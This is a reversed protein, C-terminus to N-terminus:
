KRYQKQKGAKVGEVLYYSNRILGKLSEIDCGENLLVSIWHKKNMHYAPYIHINDTLDPIREPDAKLNIVDCKGESDIGMSKYPINMIIAYWKNRVETNLTTSDDDDAFPHVPVTNFEEKVFDFIKERLDAANFCNDRISELTKEAKERIESLFSGESNRVNFLIYESGEEDFVTVEAKDDTYVLKLTFDSDVIKREIFYEKENQYNQDNQDIQDESNKEKGIESKETENFGYKLAKDRSFRYKSFFWKYDM